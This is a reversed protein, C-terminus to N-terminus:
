ALRKVMDVVPFGFREHPYTRVDSWGHRTYFARARSNEAVVRLRAVAHGCSAIDGEAADLLDRGISVGRYKPLIWLDEVRDDEALAVGVIEDEAVAVWSTSWDTAPFPIDAILHGYVERVVILVLSAIAESESRDARRIHISAAM